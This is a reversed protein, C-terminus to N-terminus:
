IGSPGPLMVCKVCHPKYIKCIPQIWAQIRPGILLHALSPCARARGLGHVARKTLALLPACIPHHPSHRRSSVQRPRPILFINWQTKMQKNNSPSELYAFNAVADKLSIKLRDEQHSQRGKRNNRSKRKQRKQRKTHAKYVVTKRQKEERIWNCALKWFLYISLM